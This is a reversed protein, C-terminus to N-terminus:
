HILQTQYWLEALVGGYTSTVFVRTYKTFIYPVMLKTENPMLVFTQADNVFVETDPSNQICINIPYYGKNRVIFTVASSNSTLFWPSKINNHWTSLTLEKEFFGMCSYVPVIIERNYILQLQCSLLNKNGLEVIFGNNKIMGSTLLHFSETIDVLMNGECSNDYRNGFRTNYNNLSKLDFKDNLYCPIEEEPNKYRDIEMLIYASEVKDADFIEDVAFYILALDNFKIISIPVQNKMDNIVEKKICLKLSRM